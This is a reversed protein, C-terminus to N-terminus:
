EPSLFVLGLFATKRNCNVIHMSTLLYFILRRIGSVRPVCPWLHRLVSGFAAFAKPFLDRDSKHAENLSVCESRQNGMDHPFDSCMFSTHACSFPKRHTLSKSFNPPSTCRLTVSRLLLDQNEWTPKMGLGNKSHFISWPDVCLDAKYPPWMRVWESVM